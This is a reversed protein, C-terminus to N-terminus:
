FPIHESEIEQLLERAKLKSKTKSRDSELIEVLFDIALEQYNAPKALLEVITNDKATRNTLKEGIRLYIEHQIFEKRFFAFHGVGDKWFKSLLEINKPLYLYDLVKKHSQWGNFFQQEYGLNNKCWQEITPNHERWGWEFGLGGINENQILKRHLAEAMKEAEEEKLYCFLRKSKRLEYEENFYEEGDVLLYLDNMYEVHDDLYYGDDTFWMGSQYVSYIKDGSNLLLGSAIAKQAKESQTNQLLEYAKARIILEPDNLNEILLDVGSEGYELAKSLLSTKQETGSSAIENVLEEM